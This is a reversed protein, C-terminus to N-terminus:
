NDLRTRSSVRKIAWQIVETDFSPFSEHHYEEFHSFYTLLHIVNCKNKTKKSYWKYLFVQNMCFHPSISSAM